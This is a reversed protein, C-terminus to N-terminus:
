RRPGREVRTTPRSKKCGRYRRQSIIRDGRNTLAVIRVVYTKRNAPLRKITIRTIKRGRRSLKRKGNVFVNVAVIRRRPPQHIKFSFRRRDICKKTSPLGLPNSGGAASGSGGSGGAGGAGEGPVSGPAPKPVCSFGVPPKDPVAATNGIQATPKGNYNGWVDCADGAEVYAGEGSRLSREAVWTGGVKHGRVREVAGSQSVFTFVVRDLDGVDLWPRFACGQPTEGPAHCYWEFRDPDNPAAPDRVFHRVATIYKARQPAKDYSDPYDIPGLRAELPAGGGQRAIGGITRRPGVKFGAAGGAGFDDITIGTWPKV